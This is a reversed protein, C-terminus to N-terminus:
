SPKELNETAFMLDWILRMRVLSTARRRLLLTLDASLVAIRWNRSAASCPLFSSAWAANLAAARWSSLATLLPTMWALWAALLFDAIAWRALASQTGTRAGDRVQEPVLRSREVTGAKQEDPASPTRRGPRSRRATAAARTDVIRLVARELAYAPDVAEGKVDANLAAVVQMAETLAPATWGRGQGAARKVKWPPMGLTKALAYENAGGTRRHCGRRPGRHAGRRRHRRRDRRASRRHRPRLAPDGPGRPRARSVAHDSVAFGTVEARGSHYARVVEVTVNGGSDTALQSAVSALERLDSGVSDVVAAVADPAIRGGARRVEDRVFDSRESPRTLRACGIELAKAKRAAELVAKGKAGGAHQLVLVAGDSDADLYPALCDPAAARVDQAATVTVVRADGFLSPGMLEHVEPGDIDSGALETEITDPDARRAAASIAGLARSVLLEEEGVVLVLGPLPVPLDDVTVTRAPM